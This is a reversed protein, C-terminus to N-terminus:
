KKMHLQNLSPDSKMLHQVPRVKISCHVNPHDLIQITELQYHM